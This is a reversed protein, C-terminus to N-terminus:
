SISARLAYNVAQCMLEGNAGQPHRLFFVQTVEEGHRYNVWCFKPFRPGFSKLSTPEFPFAWGRSTFVFVKQPIPVQERILRLFRDKAKKRQDETGHKYRQSQDGVRDPLYNFFMVRRWFVAHDQYGFYDRIQAFFPIKWEGSIVKSMCVNTFNESDEKQELHHSYGVIAIRHGDIGLTYDLGVWPFHEM